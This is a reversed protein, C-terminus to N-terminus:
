VGPPPDAVGGGSYVTLSRVHLETEVSAGSLQIHWFRHPEIDIPVEVAEWFEGNVYLGVQGDPQIELAFQTWEATDLGEPLDVYDQLILQDNSILLQGSNFKTQEGVPYLLCYSMSVPWGISDGPFPEEPEETPELCLKIRQRDTRNLQLRFVLEIRGGETLRFRDQSVMGDRYVGDGELSLVTEGEVEVIRSLPLGYQDWGALDEATFDGQLVVDPREWELVEVAV